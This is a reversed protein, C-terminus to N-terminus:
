GRLRDVGPVELGLQLPRSCERGCRGERQQVLREAPEGPGRQGFHCVLGPRLGLHRPQRLQAQQGPLAGDGQHHPGTAAGLRHRPGLLQSSILRQAFLSPSQQGERVPSAFPRRVRERYQAPGARPEGGLHTQIRSVREDFEFLGDDVPPHALEARVYGPHGRSGPLLAGVTGALVRIAAPEDATRRLQRRGEPEGLGRTTLTADHQDRALGTLALGREERLHCLPQAGRSPGHGGPLAGLGLARRGGPRPGLHQTTELFAARRRFRRSRGRERRPVRPGGLIAQARARATARQGDHEVIQM